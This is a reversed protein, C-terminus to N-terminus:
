ENLETTHNDPVVESPIGVNVTKNECLPLSVAAADNVKDIDSTPDSSQGNNKLDSIPSSHFDSLKFKDGDDKCQGSSPHQNCEIDQSIQKEMHEPASGRHDETQPSAASRVVLTDDVNNAELCDGGKNTSAHFT